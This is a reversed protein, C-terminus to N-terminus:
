LSSPDSVEERLLKKGSGQERRDVPVQLDAFRELGGATESALKGVENPLVSQTADNNLPTLDYIVMPKEETVNIQMKPSWEKPLKRELFYKSDEISGQLVSNDLNVKAQVIPEKWLLRMRQEWGDNARIHENQLEQLQALSIGAHAAIGLDDERARYAEEIKLLQEDSLNSM